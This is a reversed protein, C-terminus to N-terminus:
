SPKFELFDGKKIFRTAKASAQMFYVANQGQRNEASYGVNYAMGENWSQLTEAAKILSERSLDKGARKIIEAAVQAEAYGSAAFGSAANENPAWKTMFDRFGLVKPEKNDPDTVDPLWSATWAGDITNDSLKFLTTDNNVASFVVTPKFGIKDMEKSIAATPAPTSWMIVTDAGSQQLKLAQSGFDKDTTQYSVTTAISQGKAKAADTIAQLGEKGFADDQYFIAIKKAKLEDAAYNTLITSEITYNTLLGFTQPKPPLTLITSGTSPAINPVKNQVLYDLVAQNPATGIGGVVCFVKDQEVLKKVIPVTKAAEYADDQYIFKIKRGNIGGDDNVKKFYADLTRDVTGYASAAGSQPGWSGILIETDTVGTKDGGAIPAVTQIAGGSTAAATTVAGSAAPATTAVPAATTAVVAATTAAPATTATSDGCAALVLTISLSLLSLWLLGSWTKKHM